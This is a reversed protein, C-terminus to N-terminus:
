GHRGELRVTAGARASRARVPETAVGATANILLGYMALTILLSSGGSSFFPLPIGTAPVAGAVVAINLLAQLSISITVGYALLSRFWDDQRRALWIGRLALAVFLGVILAVGVFGLEEGVVAFLFDAQADPLGGLKRVGRGVGLGWLGGEELARRAALVQFGSGAPDYEPNLFTIIRRVRHERTFLAITGLPVVIVAIRVFYSIPVGAAFFLGLAVAVLFVATSFDNQLLVIGAFTLVVIAPPILSSVPDAFGGQRRAFIHALYLVMTMKLLESPQFSVNFLIIWRQAGMNRAGVGPVFTLLSVGVSLLVLAPLLARLIDLPMVAAIILAGLGLAVWLGQRIVFRMPDDFLVDARFWSASWLMALGVTLLVFLMALLPLDPSRREQRIAEAIFDSRVM